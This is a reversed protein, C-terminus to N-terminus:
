SLSIFFVTIQNNINIVYIKHQNKEPMQPAHVADHGFIRARQLIMYIKDM